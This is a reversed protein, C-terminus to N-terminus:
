IEDLKIMRIFSMDLVKITCDPSILMGIIIKVFEPDSTTPMKVHTIPHFMSMASNFREARKNKDYVTILGLQIYKHMNFPARADNLSTIIRDSPNSRSVGVFIMDSAEYEVVGEPNTEKWEDYVIIVQQESGPLQFIHQNM